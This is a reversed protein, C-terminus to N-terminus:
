HGIRHIRYSMVRVLIEANIIEITTAEMTTRDICPTIMELVLAEKGINISTIDVKILDVMKNIHTAELEMQDIAHAIARAVVKLDMSVERAGEKRVMLITPIIINMTEMLRTILQNQTIIHESRRKRQIIDKMSNICQCKLITHGPLTPSLHVRWNLYM